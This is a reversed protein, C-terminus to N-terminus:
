VAEHIGVHAYELDGGGIGAVLVVGPAACEIGGGFLFAGADIHSEGILYFLLNNRTKKYLPHSKRWGKKQSQENGVQSIM